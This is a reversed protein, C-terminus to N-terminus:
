FGTISKTVNNTVPRASAGAGLYKEIERYLVDENIDEGEVFFDNLRIRTSSSGHGGRSRDIDYRSM